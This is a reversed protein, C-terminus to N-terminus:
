KFNRINDLKTKLWYWLTIKRKALDDFANQTTDYLYRLRRIEEGNDEKIKLEDDLITKTTELEKTTDSLKKFVEDHEKKIATNRSILDLSSKKVDEMSREMDSFQKELKKFEEQRIIERFEDFGKYEVSKQVYETDPFSSLKHMGHYDHRMINKVEEVIIKVLAQKSELEEAIRVAEAHQSRMRDMEELSVTVTGSIHPMQLHRTSIDRGQPQYQAPLQSKKKDTM